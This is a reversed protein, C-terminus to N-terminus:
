NKKESELQEALLRKFREFSRRVEQSHPELEVAKTQHKVATEYDKKAAYCHALTDLYGGKAEEPALEISRQSFRTAEDFDGETNSVLWAYQNMATSDEPSAVVRQRFLAAASHIKKLTKERQTAPQGEIRYLAILVDAETPDLEIAKELHELQKAPEKDAAHQKARFYHARAKINDETRRIEGRGRRRLERTLDTMKDAVQDLVDAAEGFRQNDNLLEGLYPGASVVARPDSGDGITARYEGEAWKVLGQRQLDKAMELHHGPNGPQQALAKAAMEEALKPEGRALHAQAILYILKPDSALHSEFRKAVEDLLEWAEQRIIWQILEALSPSDTNELDLMRRLAVLAENQKKQDLLMIVQQRLLGAQISRQEQTPLRKTQNDEQAVIKEWAALAEAPESAYQAYVQLWEAAPRKSLRLEDNIIRSREPWAEPPPRKQGMILLAAQKSLLPSREFRVLRCLAALSEGQPRGTLQRVRNLREADSQTEYDALLKRIEASDSDRVWEMRISQVLFRARHAVELDDHSQAAALADFAAAGIEALEHQAQERVTFREDGLQEILREVRKALDASSESNQAVNSQAVAAQTCVFLALLLLAFM